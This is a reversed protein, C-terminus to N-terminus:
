QFVTKVADLYQTGWTYTPEIVTGESYENWASILVIGKTKANNNDVVSKANSLSQQFTAPTSDAQDVPDRKYDNCDAANANSIEQLNLPGRDFGATVPVHYDLSSNNIMYDYFRQYISQMVSYDYSWKLPSVANNCLTTNYTNYADEYEFYKYGYTTVASYGALQPHQVLWDYKLIYDVNTPDGSGRLPPTIVAVFYMPCGMRTEIYDLLFKTKKNNIYPENADAGLPAFFPDNKNYGCMGEISDTTGVGNVNGITTSPYYIYFVKKGDITLYNDSIHNNPDPNNVFTKWYDIMANLGGYDFFAESGSNSVLATFDNAWSLAFKVNHFDFNASKLNEIPNNYSPAYFGGAPYYSWYSNFVVFDIEHESMLQLQSSTVSPMKEDYWQPSPYYINAPIRAKNAEGKNVLFTDYNNIANWNGQMPDTGPYYWFPMYFVGVNYNSNNSM